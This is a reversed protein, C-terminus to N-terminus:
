QSKGTKLYAATGLVCRIYVSVRLLLRRFCGNRRTERRQPRKTEEGAALLSSFGVKDGPRKERAKSTPRSFARSFRGPSSTSSFRSNEPIGLPLKRSFIQKSSSKLVLIKPVNTTFNRAQRGRRPNEFM